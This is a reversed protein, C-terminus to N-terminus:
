SVRRRAEAYEPLLCLTRQTCAFRHWLSWARHSLSARSQLRGKDHHKTPYNRLAHNPLTGGLLPRTQMKAAKEMVTM